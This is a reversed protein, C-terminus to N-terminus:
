AQAELAAAIAYFAQYAQEVEPTVMGVSLHRGRDRIAEALNAAAGATIEVQQSSEGPTNHLISITVSATSNSM